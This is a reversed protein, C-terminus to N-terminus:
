GGSAGADVQDDKEVDPTWASPWHEDNRCRAFATAYYSCLVSSNKTCQLGILCLDAAVFVTLVSMALAQQLIPVKCSAMLALAAAYVFTVLFLKSLTVQRTM